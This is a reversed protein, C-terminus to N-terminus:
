GAREKRRAALDDLRALQPYVGGACDVEVRQRRGCEPCTATGKLLYTLGSRRVHRGDFHAVYEIGCGLCAFEAEVALVRVRRVPDLTPFQSAM